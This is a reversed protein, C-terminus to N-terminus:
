VCAHCRALGAGETRPESDYGDGVARGYLAEWADAISGVAFREVFARAARRMPEPAQLLQAIKEAFDEACGPEALAGVEPPIHESLGGARVGVAPLGCAMAQLLVMSQTESTSAIAFLDAAAFFEALADHGLTGVFQVHEAIGLDRALQELGRRATGHGAVVLSIDPVHRRTAAIARIIVDVRKEKGLRGACVVVSGNLKLRARLAQKDESSVPHFLTTDIPNSVVSCSRRLRSSKMEDITYQSPATVWDCQQYYGAVLRSSMRRFLGRGWPLYVDFGNVDWHNTGILPVRLRRACGIAQLGVGLFTHTHIVEPAFAEVDRWCRPDFVALRSQQSSSPVPLSVVRLIRVSAGLDPERVPRNIRAYDGESARPTILLIEHGRAGLERATALISDQIGGLEPYFSDSFVALRVNVGYRKIHERVDDM